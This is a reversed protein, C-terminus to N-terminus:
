PRPLRDKEDNLLQELQRQVRRPDDGPPVQPLIRILVEGPRKLGLAKPWIWGANLVMPVVPVGCHRYLLELGREHPRRQGPAVRTGEPYILISRGEAVSGAAERVIRRLNRGPEGRHVAIMPAHRLGWGFVPIRMAPSKTIVNIHPFIATLAISEWYSQHNSVLLFP